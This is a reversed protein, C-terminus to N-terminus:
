FHTGTETESQTLFPWREMVKVVPVATTPLELFSLVRPNSHVRVTRKITSEEM